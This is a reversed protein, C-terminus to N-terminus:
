CTIVEWHIGDNVRDDSQGSKDDDRRECDSHDEPASSGLPVVHFTEIDGPSFCGGHSQFQSRVRPPLMLLLTM